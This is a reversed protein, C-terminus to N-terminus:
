MEKARNALQYALSSKRGAFVVAEATGSTQVAKVSIQTYNGVRTPESVATSAPDNGETARNAAAAALADTQWEFYTNDATERGCGSLFPTETPSINYIINSLDERIGIAGYTVRTNSPVAM